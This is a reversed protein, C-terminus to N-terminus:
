HFATGLLYAPAAPDGGFDKRPAAELVAHREDGPHAQLVSESARLDFRDTRRTRGGAAIMAQHDVHGTTCERLRAHSCTSLSFALLHFDRNLVASNSVVGIPGDTQHGFKELFEFESDLAYAQDRGIPASEFDGHIPGEDVGLQLGPTV